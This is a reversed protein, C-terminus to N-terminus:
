DVEPLEVTQGALEHTCDSLFQIQGDRIFSHCIKVFEVGDRLGEWRVRLSPNFTPKDLGGNWEWGAGFENRIPQVTIEHAFKCGPCDFMYAIIQGQYEVPTIKPM